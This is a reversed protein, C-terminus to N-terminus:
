SRAPAIRRTLHLASALALLSFAVPGDYSAHAVQLEWGFGILLVCVLWSTRRNLMLYAAASIVGNVVFAVGAVALIKHMGDGTNFDHPDVFNAAIGASVGSAGGGIIGSLFGYFWAGWNLRM